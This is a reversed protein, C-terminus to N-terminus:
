AMWAAKINQQSIEITSVDVENTESLELVAVPIIEQSLLM